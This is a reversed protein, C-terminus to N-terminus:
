KPFTGNTVMNDLWEGFLANVWAFWGRTFTSSDDADFSEHIYDNAPYKDRCKVPKEPFEDSNEPFEDPKEPCIDPKDPCIDDGCFDGYQFGFNVASRILMDLMNRKEQDSDSTMGQMILAMPWIYSGKKFYGTHPSGIGSFSECGKSSEFFYPNNNSLIFTRTSAVIPDHVYANNLYPLSLLSPIGADDMLVFNGRVSITTGKAPAIALVLRNNYVNYDSDPQLPRKRNNERLIVEIANSTDTFPDLRTQDHPKSLGFSPTFSLTFEKTKGDGPFTNDEARGKGDTEYAYIPGLDPYRNITGFEHVGMNIEGQLHLADKALKENHYFQSAIEGIYGLIATAFINDPIHYNLLCKDDTRLDSWTMGTYPMDKQKDDDDKHRQEKTFITVIAKMLDEFYDDFHDTYGSAKYFDYALWIVYCQSDPEYGMGPKDVYCQSKPDYKEQAVDVTKKCCFAHSYFNKVLLIANSRILGAIIKKLSELQEEPYSYAKDTFINLYAHLQACADRPWMECMVGDPCPPGYCKWGGTINFTLFPDLSLIRTTTKIPNQYANEFIRALHEYDIEIPSKDMNEGINAYSRITDAIQGSRTAILDQANKLIVDRPDNLINSM